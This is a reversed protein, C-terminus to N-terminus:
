RFIRGLVRVRNGLVRELLTSKYSIWLYFYGGIGASVFLVIVSSFRTVEDFIFANFIWKVVFVLITMGITFIFILMARKVLPKYSISTTKKIKWLNLLSATLVALGTAFVAGKAEFILIFPINCVVKLLLGVGLSILAFNQKNLGQLISATVTFLGYFLAVPAYWSLLPAAVPLDEVGYFSGYAEKSLLTLGVVAPITILVIIQLAQNIQQIYLEKKKETFSKTIIPLLALSLGTALTVPIIVLKHGLLVIVSLAVDKIQILGISVMANPFTFQDILQYIPIAIGVLVFPGAYGLLERYMEKPSLNSTKKQLKLQKDLYPKRIKWYYGLVFLSGLAGVFAAFTAMGVANTTTSGVVKVLIFVSGLLFIIRIIQELVQSVATPGMSGYGQFFGRIISMAPIIILAFSVMQIVFKVDDLTYNVEEKTTFGKAILEASFFLLLFAVIGTFLMVISASKFMRRGTEYDGLANYKSVFKSMALPIGMTSISILIMYPNYAFAYLAAGTSGVLAEFPIVYIIGLIKSLFTAGTLLMTGRLINSM